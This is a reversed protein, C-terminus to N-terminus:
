KLIVNILCENTLQCDIISEDEELIRNKYIFITNDQDYKKDLGNLARKLDIIGYGEDINITYIRGILTKLYICITKGTAKKVGIKFKKQPCIKYKKANEKQEKLLREKFIDDFDEFYFPVKPLEVNKIDGINFKFACRNCLNQKCKNCRYTTLFTEKDTQHCYSCTYSNGKKEKQLFLITTKMMLGKCKQCYMNSKKLYINYGLIADCLSCPCGNEPGCNGDCGKCICQSKFTYNNSCYIIGKSEKIGLELHPVKPEFKEFNKFACEPCMNYKCKFCHMLPIFDDKQYNKYCLSCNFDYASPNQILYKLNCVKIRILTKKCTICIMTGTSYLLYALTNDCDPCPCGNTTGCYGDCSGCQCGESNCYKEGCYLLGKGKGSGENIFRKSNRFITTAM